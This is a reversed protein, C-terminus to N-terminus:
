GGWRTSKTRTTSAWWRRRRRWRLTVSCGLAAQVAWCITSAKGFSVPRGVKESIAVVDVALGESVSHLAQAEIFDECPGVTRPLIRDHFLENARHPALAQVMDDHEALPMQAADDGRVERVILLCPGVPPRDLPRLRAPDHLKGVDPAQMRAVNPLGCLVLVARGTKVAVV